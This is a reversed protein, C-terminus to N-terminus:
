IRIDEEEAMLTEETDTQEDIVESENQERLFLYYQLNELTHWNEGFHKSLLSKVDQLKAPKVPIGINNVTPEINEILKGRKIVHGYNIVESVYNPEGKVAIKNNKDRRIFFRKSQNFQFHWSGPKKLVNSVTSKWDYFNFDRGLRLVTGHKNFIDYYTKPEVIVELRKIEREINGFVRDPPLFSHGVIPFILSIKSIHTPSKTKLWYLLMGLVTSNKNQGGCGDCFLRVHRNTSEFHTNMLRHYLASAVQNSGKSAETELWTYIFTNSPNQKDRSSGQCITLNYMYLQRSYYASQDAVKPLVLNKQCDFSFVIENDAQTKLSTYFWKAKLKHIRLQTMVRQKKEQNHEKKIIEKLSICKSCADTAPTKFSLNFYKVFIRRFFEYNVKEEELCSQSYSKHLKKISLDSSLYQVTSRGRVYHSEICKLGKLFKKVSETRSAFKHSKRDGGRNEIPMLMTTLHRKCIRQIRDKSIGLVTTIAKQCVKKMTVSRKNQKVISKPIFYCITQTKKKTVKKPTQSTCYKLLFSDQTIKDATSYFNRHFKSYDQITLENCKYGQKSNGHACKPIVPPTKPM